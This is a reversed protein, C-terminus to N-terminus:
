QNCKSDFTEIIPPYHTYEDPIDLYRGSNIPVRDVTDLWDDFDVVQILFDDEVTSTKNYYQATVQVKDCHTPFYPPNSLFITKYVSGVTDTIDTFTSYVYDDRMMNITVNANELTKGNNDKVTITLDLNEDLYPKDKVDLIIDLNRITSLSDDWGQWLKHEKLIKNTLDSFQSTTDDSATSKLTSKIEYPDYVLTETDSQLIKFSVVNTPHRLILTVKSEKDFDTGTMIFKKSTDKIMWGYNRNKVTQDFFFIEKGDYSITGLATGNTNTLDISYSLNQASSAFIETKDYHYNVASASGIGIITIAFVVILVIKLM